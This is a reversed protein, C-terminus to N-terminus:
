CHLQPIIPDLAQPLPYDWHKILLSRAIVIKEHSLIMWTQIM